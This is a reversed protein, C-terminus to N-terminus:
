MHDASDPENQITMMSVPVGAAKYASIYKSLYLAYSEYMRPDDIMGPKASNRMYGKKTLWGRKMWGPPSWATSIFSLKDNAAIARKILPIIQVEDHSITFNTQNFDNPKENYNYVTTSFDTSGITLRALNYNQGDPGWLLGIVKEQLTANLQSFVHAVSDTFAGGFGMLEQKKEMPNVKVTYKASKSPSTSFPVVQQPQLRDPPLHKSASKEASQYFKSM